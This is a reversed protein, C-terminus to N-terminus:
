PKIKYLSQIISKKFEETLFKQSPIHIFIAQGSMKELMLYYAYNCLSIETKDSVVNLAGNASFAQSIRTADLATNLIKSDNKACVEIRAKDKLKTDLGFMIVATYAGCDYNEIDNRLGDFSNTLFLKDSGLDKILNYSSNHGGKFATFLLSM